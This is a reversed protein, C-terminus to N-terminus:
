QKLQALVRKAQNLHRLEHQTMIDLAAGMTYTIFTGAPSHIVAEAQVLDDVDRIFQQFQEQHALFRQVIDGDIASQAPEWVPRTKAKKTNAPVISQYIIRYWFRTMFAQRGLLGAKYAGSRLREVVPLYSNNIVMIHDLVQAISWTEANPKQNLTTADLHGFTNAVERSVEHIISTWNESNYM